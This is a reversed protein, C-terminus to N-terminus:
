SPVRVGPRSLAVRMLVSEIMSRAPESFCVLEFSRLTSPRCMLWDSSVSLSTMELSASLAEFRVTVCTGYRSLLSVRRSWGDSEPSASIETMQVM